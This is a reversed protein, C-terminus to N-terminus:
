PEILIGLLVKGPGIWRITALEGPGSTAQARVGFAKGMQAGPITGLDLRTQTAPLQAVQVLDAVSVGMYITYGTIIGPELPTGDQYTTPPTWQLSSTEAMAVSSWAAVLALSLLLTKM